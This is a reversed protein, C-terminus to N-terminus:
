GVPRLMLAKVRTADERRGAASLVAALRTLGHHREGLDLQDIWAAAQDIDDSTPAVRDIYWAPPPADEMGFGRAVLALSEDRRGLRRVALAMVLAAHHRGAMQGGLQTTREADGPRDRWALAWALPMAARDRLDVDRENQLFAELSHIAASPDAQGLLALASELERVQDDHAAERRHEGLMALNIWVAVMIFVYLITANPPGLRWVLVAAGAAVAVSVLYPTIHEHDPAYRNVIRQMVQGGDLPLIPVLNLLGLGLSILITDSLMVSTLQHTSGMGTRQGWLALLGLAAGAFPGALSIVIAQSDTLKREDNSICVGGFAMVVISSKRGYAGFALAHGWEHILVSVLVVGIFSMTFEIPRANQALLVVVLLLFSWHITVPTAGISFRLGRTKKATIPVM